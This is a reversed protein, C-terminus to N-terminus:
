KSAEMKYCRSHIDTTPAMVFKDHTVCHQVGDMATREWKCRNANVIKELTVRDGDFTPKRQM